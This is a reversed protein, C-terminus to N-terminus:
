SESAEAPASGEPELPPLQSLDELGFYQLFEFTTGYLIPRGAQELRGVEEILGRSVLTRLVSDSQVGRIADVEARTIPQRYAVIALTELAAPSLRSTVDLGLFREVVEATEPATVMQVRHGKRQLRVGRAACQERLIDLAQEVMEQDVMLTAALREVSVPEDAVFLVAEIFPVLDAPAAAAPRQEQEGAPAQKVEQHQAGEQPM